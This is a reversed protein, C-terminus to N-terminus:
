SQGVKNVTKDDTEREVDYLPSPCPVYSCAGPTGDRRALRSGGCRTCKVATFSSPEHDTM